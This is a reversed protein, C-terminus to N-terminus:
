GNMELRLELPSSNRFSNPCDIAAIMMAAFRLMLNSEVYLGKNYKKVWIVLGTVKIKLYASIAQEWKTLTQNWFIEYSELSSIQPGHFGGQILARVKKFKGILKWSNKPNGVAFVFTKSVAM